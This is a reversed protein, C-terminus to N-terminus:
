INKQFFSSFFKIEEILQRLKTTNIVAFVFGCSFDVRFGGNNPLYGHLHVIIPLRIRM